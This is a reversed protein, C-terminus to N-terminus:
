VNKRLTDTLTNGSSISMQIPPSLLASQWGWHLHPDTLGDFVWISCFASSTQIRERERGLQKLQSQDGGSRPILSLGNASRTRLGESNFQFKCWPNEPDTAQLPLDYSKKAKM